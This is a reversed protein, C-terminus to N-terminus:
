KTQKSADHQFCGVKHFFEQGIVTHLDAYNVTNHYVSSQPRIFLTGKKLHSEFYCLRGVLVDATETFIDASIGGVTDGVIVESVYENLQHWKFYHSHATQAIRM